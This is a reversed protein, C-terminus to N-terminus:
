HFRCIRRIGKYVLYLWAQYSGYATTLAGCSVDSGVAGMLVAKLQMAPAILTWVIQISERGSKISTDNAALYHAPVM